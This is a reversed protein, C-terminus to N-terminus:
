THARFTPDPEAYSANVATAVYTRPPAVVGTDDTTRFGAGDGELGCGGPVDTRNVAWAEPPEPVGSYWNQSNSPVDHVLWCPYPAPFVHVHFM